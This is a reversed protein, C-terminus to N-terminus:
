GKSGRQRAFEELAKRKAKDNKANDDIGVVQKLREVIGKKESMPLGGTGGWWKNAIEYTGAPNSLTTFGIAGWDLDYQEKVKDISMPDSAWHDTAEIIFSDKIDSSNQNLIVVFGHGYSDGNWTLHGLGLYVSYDQFAGFKLEYYMIASCIATASTECDDHGLLKVLVAPTWNDLKGWQEQDTMYTDAKQIVNAILKCVQSPHIDSRRRNCDAATLVSEFIPCPMFISPHDPYKMTQELKKTITVFEGLMVHNAPVISLMAPVSQNFLTNAPLIALKGALDNLSVRLQAIQLRDDASLAQCTSLAVAATKSQGLVTQYNQQMFFLKSLADNKDFYLQQQLQKSQALEVKLKSNEEKLVSGGFINDVLEAWDPIM